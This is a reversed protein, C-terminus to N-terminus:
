VSEERKGAKDWAALAAYFEVPYNTTRRVLDALVHAAALENRLRRVEALLDPIDQRSEAIFDKNARDRDGLGDDTALECVASWDAAFVVSEPTYDAPHCADRCGWWPGPTTARVRAEIAALREESLLGSM